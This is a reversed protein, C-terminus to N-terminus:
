GRGRVLRDLLSSGRQRRGAAEEAVACIWERSDAKKMQLVTKGARKAAEFAPDEPIEKWVKFGGMEAVHEPRYYSAPTVKNVVLVAKGSEVWDRHASLFRKILTEMYGQEPITLLFARHAMSLAMRAHPAFPNTGFDVVIVEYERSLRSLIEEADEDTLRGNRGSPLLRFGASHAVLRRPLEKGYERWNDTNPYRDVQELLGLVEALNGELDFDVVATSRGQMAFYAGLNSALATKGVGGKTSFSALLLTDQNFLPSIYPEIRGNEEKEEPKNEISGSPEFTNNAPQAPVEFRVPSVPLEGETLRWAEWCVSSLGCVRFGKEKFVAITEWDTPADIVLVGPLGLAKRFLEEKDRGGFRSYWSTSAVVAKSKELTETTPIGNIKLLERVAESGAVFVSM